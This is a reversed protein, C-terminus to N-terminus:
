FASNPEQLFAEEEPTSARGLAHNRHPFRGFRAVIEHHRRAFELNGKFNPDRALATYLAIGREQDALEESHMFPLYLFQRWTGPLSRDFGRSLAQRAVERAMTDTAFSQATGRYFNRPLQDLLLVLALCPEAERAWEACHGAAARQQLALFHGRLQEDFGPDVKFWIDRQQFRMASRPPGFWFDVLATAEAREADTMMAGSYGIQRLSVLM